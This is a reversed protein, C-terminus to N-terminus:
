HGPFEILSFTKYGKKELLNKGGLDFLNIVFVFGAVIGRSKEVLKAGAEGLANAIAFGIGKGCGTILGVKSKM